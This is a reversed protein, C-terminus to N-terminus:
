APVTGAHHDLYRPQAAPSEPFRRGDTVSAIVIQRGPGPATALVTDQRGTSGPVLVPTLWNQAAPPGTLTTAYFDFMHGGTASQQVFQHRLFLWVTGAGDLGLRPSQYLQKRLFGSYAGALEARTERLQGGELVAVRPRRYFATDSM